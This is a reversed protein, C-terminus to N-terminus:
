FQVEPDQDPNSRRRYNIWAGALVAAALGGLGDATVDAWSPNRGPIFSQHFEDALGYVAALLFAFYLYRLELEGSWLRKVGGSFGYILALCLIAYALFHMIYDPALDAGSPAPNHSQLFVILAWLLAPIWNLLNLLM